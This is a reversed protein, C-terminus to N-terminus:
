NQKNTKDNPNEICFLCFGLALCVFGVGLGSGAVLRAHVSFLPQPPRQYWMWMGPVGGPVESCSPIRFSAM